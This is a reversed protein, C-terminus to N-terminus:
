ASATSGDPNLGFKRLREGEEAKGRRILLDRLPEEIFPLGEVALARLGEEDGRDALLDTLPRVASWNGAEAEARLGEEDGRRALLDALSGIAFWDGAEALARVGEEDGRGALTYALAAAARSDGADARARLGEKDGRQALLRVLDRVPWEEGTDDRGPSSQGTRATENGPPALWWALAKAAYQDGADARARLEDQDADEALHGVLYGAADRNGADALSRLGQEDGRHALLLALAAAAHRDGDAALSRLAREDGRRALLERLADAISPDGAGADAAARYLVVAYRNLIRATASAGLRRADDPDSVCALLAEWLSAPPGTRRRERAAHQLLYDAPIYGSVHGMGGPGAPALASAAGSVMATAYAVAQEYWDQPAEARQRGSCYGPAAKRLFEASLPARAGLRAADLAATIVAWAYPAGTQADQWRAVLQPAAALTQTLGYGKAALAAKLRPDRVAAARARDDEAASFEPGIRVVEALRLVERERAHSNGGPGPVAMWFSYWEPWLTGIVVVPGSAGLLARMAGGTLGPEVGLYRQLEDLWVVTRASPAAALAAVEGPGDPHVLWWDPLLARVAEFACRTKGTSSGGVLLVFGGREAATGIKARIGSGGADADRAVYEPLRDEAVGPVSIAAHVGLRRPDADRVRVAGAPVRAVETLVAVWLDRARGVVDAEDARAARALVTVVAVLDAQSPPV